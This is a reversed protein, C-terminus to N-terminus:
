AIVGILRQHIAPEIHSMAATFDRADAVLRDWNVAGCPAYFLHKPHDLREPPPYWEFDTIILSLRRARVPSANIFDWIQRYDTGGTVKPIRRFEEWIRRTSRGAVKLMTPASLVHSFSSVYLNVGLKKAVGILLQVAEQYNEESISGSTDLFLHIDPLYFQSTTRGPYNPDDPHRRNARAFSTRVTRVVNQSRNVRGMRGLARMIGEYLNVPSPASKRFAVAASRGVCRDNSRGAASVAKSAARPLATLKSIDTRSLIKVPNSLARNILDWEADVAHPDAHAHAEVNVLVMTRPRFLEGAHFALIGAEEPHGAGRRDSVWTMLAWTLLRPFSYEENGDDDGVRLRLSETLGSLHLGSLQTIRAAVSPDGVAVASVAPNNVMWDTFDDFAAADRFRFGLTNPHYAFDLSALLGGGDDVGALLNKAAPIVDDRATYLVRPGPAPWTRAVAEQAAFLESVPLATSGDHHLMTSGLVGAMRAEAAPEATEGLCAILMGTLDGSVDTGDEEIVAPVGPILPTRLPDSITAEVLAAPDLDGTIRPRHLPDLVVPRQGTVTIAM